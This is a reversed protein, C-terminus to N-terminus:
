YLEKKIEEINKYMTEIYNQEINEIAATDFIIKEIKNDVIFKEIEPDLIEDKFVIIYKLIEDEILKIADNKRKEFLETDKDLSTVTLGYKEFFSLADNSILINKQESNEVMIKIDADLESIELRIQEYNDDIENILYTAKIYEKFGNRINQTLMLFNSPNIWLEEISNVYDMGMAADIIMLDKNKNLMSVAYDKEESLGNYVFLDSKSYDDLLTDSIDVIENPYISFIRSHNGYLKNTIYEIPYTSTYIIINELSNTTVDCGTLILLLLLLSIIKKM